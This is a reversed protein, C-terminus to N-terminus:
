QEFWDNGRKIYTKGGIVRTDDAPADDTKPAAGARRPTKYGQTDAYDAIENQMLEYVRYFERLKKAATSADDDTKPIFPMLRPTEAATVAAGSRDHIRLSGINAVRARAQVGKPDTRSILANPLYNKLGFASKNKEVIEIAAKVDAMAANNEIWAKSQAAPLPKLPKDTAGASKTAAVLNAIDRRAAIEAMKWENQMELQRKQIELRSERDLNRDALRQELLKNENALQERKLELKDQAAARAQENKFTRDEGRTIDDNLVKNILAAEERTKPNRMGALTYKLVNQRTVPQADQGQVMTNGNIDEERPVAAQPTPMGSRWKNADAGMIVNLDDEAKSAGRDAEGAQYKDLLPALYQTWSPAVYIGSVMNGQPASSSDAKKRLLEAMKRQRSASEAQVDFNPLPANPDFMQM